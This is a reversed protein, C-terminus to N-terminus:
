RTRQTTLAAACRREGSSASAHPSDPPLPKDARQSSPAANGAREITAARGAQLVWCGRQRPSLEQAVRSQPLLSEVLGRKAHELSEVSTATGLATRAAAWSSGKKERHSHGDALPTGMRSLHADASSPSQAREDEAGHGKIACAAMWGEPTPEPWYSGRRNQGKGECLDTGGQLEGAGPLSRPGHAVSASCIAANAGLFGSLHGRDTLNAAGADHRRDLAHGGDSRARM